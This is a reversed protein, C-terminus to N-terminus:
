SLSYKCKGGFSDFTHVQSHIVLILHQQQQQQTPLSHQTLLSTQSSWGTTWLNSVTRSDLSPTPTTELKQMLSRRLYEQVLCSVSWWLVMIISPGAFTVKIAPLRCIVFHKQRYLLSNLGPMGLLRVCNWEGGSVLSWIYLIAITLTCCYKVLGFWQISWDSSVISKHWGIFLKSRFSTSRAMTCRGEIIAM